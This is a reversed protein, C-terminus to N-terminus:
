RPSITTSRSAPKIWYTAPDFRWFSWVAILLLPAAGIAALAILPPLALLFAPGALRGSILRSPTM